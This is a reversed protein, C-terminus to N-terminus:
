HLLHSLLCWMNNNTTISSVVFNVECMDHTAPKETLFIVNEQLAHKIRSGGPDLM